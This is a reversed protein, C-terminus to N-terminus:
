KLIGADEADVFDSPITVEKQVNFESFNTYSDIKGSVVYDKYDGVCEFDTYLSVQMFVGNAIVATYKVDSFVIDGNDSTLYQQVNPMDECAVTIYEKFKAPSLSVTLKYADLIEGDAYYKIKKADIDSDTLPMDLATVLSVIDSPSVNKTTFNYINDSIEPINIYIGNSSTTCAFDVSALSPSITGESFTKLEKNDVYGNSVVRLSKLSALYLKNVKQSLKEGFDVDSTIKATYSFCDATQMNKVATEYLESPSIEPDTCGALSFIALCLLVVTIIKKM